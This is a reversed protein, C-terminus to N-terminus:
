IAPTPPALAFAPSALPPPSPTSQLVQWHVVAYVHDLSKSIMNIIQLHPRFPTRPHSSPLPWCPMPPFLPCISARALPGRCRCSRFFKSDHQYNAFASSLPHFTRPAALPLRPPPASALFPPLPCMLASALSGRCGCSRFFNIDHQYKVFAPSPTGHIPRLWLRTFRLWSRVCQLVQWHVM